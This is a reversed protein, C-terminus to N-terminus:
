STDGPFQLHDLSLGFEGLISSAQRFKEEHRIRKVQNQKVKKTFTKDDWSLTCAEEIVGQIHSQVDLTEDKALQEGQMQLAAIAAVFGLLQNVLREKETSIAKARILPCAEQVGEFGAQVTEWWPLLKQRVSHKSNDEVLKLWKHTCTKWIFPLWSELQIYESLGLERLATRRLQFETHIVKDGDAISLLVADGWVETMWFKQSREVIEVWKDYLRASIAGRGINFGTLKHNSYHPDIKTARTVFHHRIDEQWLEAPMLLDVCLDLRSLKVKDVRGGVERLLGLIRQVSADVGHTWLTEARIEIMVSPRNQPILWQGIRLAYENSTLIWQYGDKGYLSVDFLWDAQGETGKIRGTVPEEAEEAEARLETLGDFFVESKWFVDVALVLTDV